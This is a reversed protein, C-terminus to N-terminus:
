PYREVARYCTCDLTSGRSDMVILPVTGEFAWSQLKIEQQGSTSAIKDRVSDPWGLSNKEEETWVNLGITMPNM